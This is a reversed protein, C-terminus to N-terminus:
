RTLSWGDTHVSNSYILILYSGELTQNSGRHLEERQAWTASSRALQPSVPLACTDSEWCVCPSLCCPSFCAFGHWWKRVKTNFISCSASTKPRPASRLPAAAATQEHSLRRSLLLSKRIRGGKLADRLQASRREAASMLSGTRHVSTNLISHM